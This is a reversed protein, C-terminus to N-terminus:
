LCKAVKQLLYLMFIEKLCSRGDYCVGTPDCNVNDSSPGPTFGLGITSQSSPFSSSSSSGFGDPRPPPTFITNDGGVLAGGGIGGGGVVVGGGGIVSAGSGVGSGGGIVGGDTSGGGFGGGTVGGGGIVGSGVGVTTGGGLGGVNTSGSGPLTVEQPDSFVIFVSSQAGAVGVLAKIKNIHIKKLFSFIGTNASVISFM